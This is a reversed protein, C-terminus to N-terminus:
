RELHPDPSFSSNPFRPMPMPVPIRISLNLTVKVSYLNTGYIDKGFEGSEIFICGLSLLQINPLSIKCFSKRAKLFLKRKQVWTPFSRHQTEKKLLQLFLTQVRLMITFFGGGLINQQSYTKRLFKLGEISLDLM